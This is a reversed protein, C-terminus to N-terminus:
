HVLPVCIVYGATEVGFFSEQVSVWIYLTIWMCVHFLLFNLFEIAYHCQKGSFSSPCFSVCGRVRVGCIRLSIEWISIESFYFWSIKIRKTQFNVLDNYWQWVKKEFCYMTCVSYKCNSRRILLSFKTYFPEASLRAFTAPRVGQLLLCVPLLSFLYIRFSFSHKSGLASCVISCAAGGALGSGSCASTQCPTM